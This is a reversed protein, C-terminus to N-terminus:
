CLSSKLQKNEMASYKPFQKFYTVNKFFYTAIDRTFNREEDAAKNFLRRLGM